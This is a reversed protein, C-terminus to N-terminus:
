ERPLVRPFGPTVGQTCWHYRVKTRGKLAGRQGLRSGGMLSAALASMVPIGESVSREVLTRFKWNQLNPDWELAGGGKAYAFTTFICSTPDENPLGFVLKGFDSRYSGLLYSRVMNVRFVPDIGNLFRHIDFVSFNESRLYLPTVRFGYHWDAGCSERFPGVVFSKDTNLVFGCFNLLEKLLAYACGPVIIDDGYVSLHDLNGDCYETTVRALAWFVLTELAFTFGNGMSSFKEYNLVTGEVVGTHCRIDDLFSFWSSPLLYRVLETAITDSASSLDITSPGCFGIESGLRALQQNRSQDAISNGLQELKVALYEHVGLQLCVNLSPEIAITRLTCADKEVFTIRNSNASVYPITYGLREWDVEAHLRFWAPSTEVLLRAYCRATDSTCLDTDGLKFPRSVRYKNRTGICVGSGPRAKSLVVDLKSDTFEGITRRILERARSLLVRIDNPMRDPRRLYHRLKKNTRRCRDESSYFAKLASEKRVKTSGKFPVKQILAAFQKRKYYSEVSQFVPRTFESLCSKMERYRHDRILGLITHATLADDDTLNEAIYLEAVKIATASLGFCSRREIM